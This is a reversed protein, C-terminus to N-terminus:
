NFFPIDDDDDWKTDEKQAWEEPVYSLLQKSNSKRINTEKIDPHYQGYLEVWKNFRRQKFWKQREFDPNIDTFKERLEKLDREEDITDKWRDDMFDVFEPCTEEKMKRIELNITEPDEMGHRLFLQCCHIMFNDFQNWTKEDWDRFFWEQFEQDPGHSAGYYDAMEFELSRDRASDGHLRVTRNTSIYIKAPILFPSENKYQCKIGETIDNFLQEFDFDRQVDNLHVLRTDIALDQWKFRDKPNFDKGNVEVYTKAYEDANLMYGMAKMVLTKGTRGSAEDATRSDTFIVARMKGEMYSHLGNGLIQKFQRYRHPSPNENEKGDYFRKEWNNSINKVFQAFNCQEFDDVQKFKRDLIQNKWIKGKLTSYPKLEVSDKTVEVYGNQYYFYAVEQSHRQIQMDPDVGVRYLMKDNTLKSMGNLFKNWINETMVGDPLNDGYSYLYDELQDIIKTDDVEEIINDTIRILFYKMGLDMRRFGLERLLEIFMVYHITTKNRGEKDETLIYFPKFEFEPTPNPNTVHMTM